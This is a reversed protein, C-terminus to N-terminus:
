ARHLSSEDPITIASSVMAFRAFITLPGLAASELDTLFTSEPTLDSSDGSNGRLTNGDRAGKEKGDDRVQKPVWEEACLPAM